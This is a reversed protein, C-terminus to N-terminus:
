RGRRTKRRLDIAARAKERTDMPLLVLQGARQLAQYVPVLDDGLRALSLNALWAVQALTPREPFGLRARVRAGLGFRLTGAGAEAIPLPRETARRWADGGEDYPWPAPPVYSGCPSGVRGDHEEKLLGCIDCPNLLNDPPEGIFLYPAVGEFVWRTPDLVKGSEEDLVIWGHTVIPRGAFLTGPRVDGRYHGYVARGEVLKAAVIATAIAYCNGAWQAVPINIADAVEDVTLQEPRKTPTKPTTM